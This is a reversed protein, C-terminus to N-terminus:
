GSNCKQKLNAPVNNWFTLLVCINMDRVVPESLSRSIVLYLPFIFLDAEPSFYRCYSITQHSRLPACHNPVPSAPKVDTISQLTVSRCIRKLDFPSSAHFLSCRRGNGSLVGRMQIACRTQIVTTADARHSAERVRQHFDSGQSRRAVFYRAIDIDGIPFVLHM